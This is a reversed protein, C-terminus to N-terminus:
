CPLTYIVGIKEIIDHTITTEGVFQISFIPWKKISSIGLKETIRLNNVNEENRHLEYMIGLETNDNAGYKRVRAMVVEVDIGNMENVLVGWHCLYDKGDSSAAIFPLSMAHSTPRTFLWISYKMMATMHHHHITISSSPRHYTPHNWIRDTGELNSAPPAQV